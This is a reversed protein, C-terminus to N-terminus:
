EGKKPRYFYFMIGRGGNILVYDDTKGEPTRRDAEKVNKYADINRLHKKIGDDGKGDRIADKVGELTSDRNTDFKAQTKIAEVEDTIDYFQPISKGKLLMYGVKGKLFQHGHVMEHALRGEIPMRIANTKFVELVIVKKLKGERRVEKAYAEGGRTSKKRDNPHYRSVKIQFEVDSKEMEKIKKNFDAKNPDRAAEAKVKNLLKEAAKSQPAFYEGLPDVFNVLNMNGAQYLNLSDVYGLPDPSLFRGTTPDLFRARYYYMNLSKEYRRGQFMYTNGITSEVIENGDKDLITPIGYLGYKVREVINGDKDTIATISGIGDTHYYYDGAKDGTLIKVNFVEDIGAGYVYQKTLVNSGDLEEIVQNGSYIYKTTVSGVTKETRRGFTDYKFTTTGNPDTHSILANRYNYTFQQTGKRTTNGNLDYAFGWDGFSSYQNLRSGSVEPNIVTEDEGKKVTMKMINDVVDLKVTTSVESESGANETFKTLRYVNDYGYTTQMNSDHGRTESTRMGSENYAYTYKNVIANSANKATKSKMRRGLDYLYNVMDGNGYSKSLYRSMKGTYEMEALVNAGDMIRDPRNLKDFRRNIVRGNSYIVSTLNNVADYGFRVTRGNQTESSLRGVGDYSRDVTADDNVAKVIRSMADYKYTESTVGGTAGSHVISRATVRNVADFTNTIKTGDRQTESIVNGAPDYGYKKFSGDPYTVKELRWMDDYNYLTEQGKSDTITKLKGNAYYGYNTKISGKMTWEKWGTQHNYFHTISNGAFDVSGTLQGLMNYTFQATNGEPNREEILRNFADYKYTTTYNGESKMTEVKRTLNNRGDEYFYDVRNGEADVETVVQGKENKTVTSIRNLADTVTVTRTVDDYSITYSVDPGDPNKIVYSVLRGAPDYQKVSDRIINGASDRVKLKMLNGFIERQILSGDGLADVSGSMNDFGDYSYQTTNGRPDTSSTPNYNGDYSFSWNGGGSTVGQVLNRGDYGFTASVSPATISNVNGNSDYGYGTVGSSDTTSSIMDNDDYSYITSRSSNGGTVDSKTINGNKDRDYNRTVLYGGAYVQEGIVEDYNNYTKSSNIGDAVGGVSLGYDDPKYTTDFGQGESGNYSSSSSNLYGGTENDLTRGVSSGGFASEAAYKYRRVNSASDREMSLQGKRNYVFDKSYGNSYTVKKLRRTFDEYAFQTLENVGGSAPAPYDTVSGIMNSRGAYGFLKGNLRPFKNDILRNYIDYSYSTKFGGPEVKSVLVGNETSDHKYTTVNDNGDKVLANLGPTYEFRVGNLSQQHVKGTAPSYSISRLVNGKPAIYQTLLNKGSMSAGYTYRHHRGYQDAEFLDGAGSYIFSVRRGKFDSVGVLRGSNLDALPNAPDPYGKYEFYVSRGMSDVAEELQGAFNYYFFMKNGSRDVIKMLRGQRSYYELTGDFHDIVFYEARSKLMANQGPPSMYAGGDTRIFKERRGTGDYWEINGSLLVVLRKNYAHDWGLGMPGNYDAESRWVRSFAFDLGRSRVRLDTMGEVAEGTHLIVGGDVSPNNAPSNPYDSSGSFNGRRDALDARVSPKRDSANVCDEYTLYIYEGSEKELLEYFKSSLRCEIQDGSVLVANQEDSDWIRRTVKIPDSVFLKYKVSMPDDTVRKLEISDFFTATKGKKYPIVDMGEINLSRLEAYVKSAVKGPLVAMIHVTDTLNGPNDASATGTPAVRDIEIYDDGSQKVFKVTPKAIRTIQIGADAKATYVLNLHKDIVLGHNANGETEIEVALKEKKTYSFDRGKFDISYGVIGKNHVLGYILKKDKDITLDNIGAKDTEINGLVYPNAPDTIDAVYLKGKSSSNFIVLDREEGPNIRGDENLDVPFETVLDMSDISLNRSGFADEGILQGVTYDAEYGDLRGPQTANIIRLGWDSDALVAYTIGKKQYAKVGATLGGYAGAYYFGARVPKLARDPKVVSMGAGSIAVFAYDGAVCVTIPRGYYFEGGATGSSIKVAQGHYSPAGPNTVNIVRLYGFGPDGGGVVILRDEGWMCMDRIIGGGIDLTGLKVPKVPNSVDSVVISSKYGTGSFVADASYLYKGNLLNSQVRKMNTGAYIRSSKRTRFNYKVTVGNGTQDKVDEIAIVYRTDEKLAGESTVVLSASAPIYEVAVPFEESEKDAEYIRVPEDEESWNVQLQESFKLIMQSKLEVNGKEVTLLLRDSFKAGISVSFSGDAQASAETVKDGNYLRVKGPKKGNARVATGATGSVTVTLSDGSAADGTVTLNGYTSKGSKVNIISSWIGGSAAEVTPAISDDSFSGFNYVGASAVGDSLRKFLEEGTDDDVVSITFSNKVQVPIYMKKDMKMSHMKELVISRGPALYDYEVLGILAEQYAAMWYGSSWSLHPNWKNRENNTIYGNEGNDGPVPPVFAYEVVNEPLETVGRQGSSTSSAIPAGVEATGGFDQLVNGNNELKDGKISASDILMYAPKGLLEREQLLFYREGPPPSVPAPVSVKFMKKPLNGRFSVKLGGKMSLFDPTEGAPAALKEVTVKAPGDITGPELVIKMGEPTTFEGGSEDLVATKGDESVFPLSGIETVNGSPDKITVLLRDNLTAAITGSFSGDSGATVTITEQTRPNYIAIVTGPDVAGASGSVTSTGSDDPIGIAIKTPDAEPPTRDVTRFNGNWPNQLNNGNMDRIGTSLVVAIEKDSGYAEKPTWTARLGTDDLNIRGSLKKIGEVLYFNNSSLSVPDVPESFIIEVVASEDVGASGSAPSMSSIEPPTLQIDINLNVIGDKSPLNVAASGKDYSKINLAEAGSNGITALNVYAGASKSVSKIGHSDLSVLGGELPTGKDTVVGKIYGMEGLSRLFLITGGKRVGDLPVTLDAADASVVGNSSKVAKTVLQLFAIDGSKEARVIFLQDEATIGQLVSSELPLKLEASHALVAGSLALNVGGTIEFGQPATVANLSEIKDIRVAVPVNLADKPIVVEVGGNGTVTGGESGVVVGGDGPSYLTIATTIEGLKLETIKISTDPSVPFVVKQQSNGYSYAIMDSKYPVPVTKTGSLLEHEESISATVGIGSPVRETTTLLLTGASSTGPYILEPDFVLTAQPASAMSPAATGKLATGMEQVPVEVPATDKILFVYAGSKDVSAELGNESVSVMSEAYWAFTTEDYRALMLLSPDTISFRNPVRMVAKATIKDGSYIFDVAGAPSWGYPLRAILSQDGRESLRIKRSDNVAGGPVIVMSDGAKVTGGNSDIDSESGRDAILRTDFACSGFGAATAVTRYARLYGAKDIRLVATGGSLTLAFEGRKSSLATPTPTGPASGNVRVPTVVAQEMLLGTVDDYVEGTVINDGGAGNFTKTFESSLSRSASDKVTTLVKLNVVMGELNGSAKIAVSNEEVGASATFTESGSPTIIKISDATLTSIDASASFNVTITDGSLEADFVSFISDDQRILAETPASENGQEDTATAELRNVKGTVLEVEVTFKGSDAVVTEATSQGGNVKITTGAEASGTVVVSNNFTKEPLAGLVPADPASSDVTTFEISRGAKLPNGARDKIGQTINLTFKEASKLAESPRLEINKGDVSFKANVANGTSDTLNLSAPTVTVPDVEESIVVKVADTVPVGANSNEPSTSVIEPSGGDFNLNITRVARNGMSDTAVVEISNDGPELNVGTLSFSKGQPTVSTGNVKLSAFHPDDVSGSVTVTSTRSYGEQPTYVVLNPARTDLTVITEKTGRNGAADIAAVELRNQGETLNCTTLFEGNDLTLTRGNLSVKSVSNDNVSGRVVVGSQRTMFGTQPANITVTPVTTDLTVTGNVEGRNGAKDYAVVKYGSTGETSFSANNFRFYRGALTGETVESGIHLEVRGPMADEVVGMIDVTSQGSIYDAAPSNLTVTPATSDLTVTVSAKDSGQPSKAEISILNKGETLSMNHIFNDGNLTAKDGNVLVEACNNVVGRITFSTHKVLQDESPDISVIAPPSSEEIKFNRFDVAGRLTKDAAFTLLWHNGNETVPTGPTYPKFDIFSYGWVIDNNPDSLNVVATTGSDHTGGADIGTINIEPPYWCPFWRWPIWWAAGKSIVIRPSNSIRDKFSCGVGTKFHRGMILGDKLSEGETSKIDPTLVLIFPKVPVFFKDKFTIYIKKGRGFRKLKVNREINGEKGMIYLSSPTITSMNVKKNFHVCIGTPLSIEETVYFDDAWLSAGMLLGLMSIFLVVRKLMMIDRM